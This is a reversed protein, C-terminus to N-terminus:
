VHKKYNYKYAREQIQHRPYSNKTEAGRGPRSAIGNLRWLISVSRWAAEHYQAIHYLCPVTRPFGVATKGTWLDSFTHPFVAKTHRKVDKFRLPLIHKAQKSMLFSQMGGVGRM